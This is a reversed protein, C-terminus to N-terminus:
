KNVIQYGNRGLNVLHGSKTLTSLRQYVTSNGVNLSDAISRASETVIGNEAIAALCKLFEDPHVRAYRQGSKKRPEVKPELSTLDGISVGQSEMLEKIEKVVSKREEHASVEKERLKFTGDFLERVSLFKELPLKKLAALQRDVGLGAFATLVENWKVLHEEGGEITRNLKRRQTQTLVEM